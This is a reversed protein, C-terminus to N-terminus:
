CSKPSTGTGYTCNSVTSGVANRLTATDGTNNWIYSASGWYLDTRTNTGRGTRVTVANGAAVTVAPFVYTHGAADRLTWGTLTKSAGTPNDLRVWEQNLHDNTGTDSGPPDFAISRIVMGGTAVATDGTTGIAPRRPQNVQPWGCRKLRRHLFEREADDVRLRWRWKVAVWNAMYTCRYQKNPPLWDRPERDGKSRNSSATVAILSAGYGLDNAFRKRTDADWRHAGSDWAEALPVMHDIDITSLVGTTVQDYRSRWLGGALQCGPKSVTPRTVAEAILVEYRTNCGDGDADVWHTFKSRDYGARREPKTPLKKLLRRTSVKTASTTVDTSVEPATTTAATTEGPGVAALAVVLITVLALRARGRRGGESTGSSSRRM